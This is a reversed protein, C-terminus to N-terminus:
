SNPVPAGTDDPGSTVGSHVHQDLKIKNPASIVDGTLTIQVGNLWIGTSNMTIVNGNKDKLEIGDSTFAVHQTPGSSVTPPNLNTDSVLAIENGSKDRIIIGNSTFTVYQVPNTLTSGNLPGQPSGFYTGDAKNHRRLSGPNSQANTSKVASTDRDAAIFKGIDGEAPDVIFANTGGQCRWYSCHYVTQHPMSNGLGDLQNVLPQVDVYGIPVPSGPALANGGADYPGKVIKVLTATSMRAISRGIEFRHANADSRFSTPGAWGQYTAADVM